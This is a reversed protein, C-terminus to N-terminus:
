FGSVTTSSGCKSYGSCAVPCMIKCGQIHEVHSITHRRFECLSETGEKNESFYTATKLFVIQYGTVKCEDRELEAKADQLFNAIKKKQEDTYQLTQMIEDQLKEQLQKSILSM